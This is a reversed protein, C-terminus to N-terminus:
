DPQPDQAFWVTGVYANGDIDLEREWHGGWADVATVRVQTVTTPIDLSFGLEDCDFNGAAIRGTTDFVEVRADSVFLGTRCSGATSADDTWDGYVFNTDLCGTAAFAVFLLALLKM